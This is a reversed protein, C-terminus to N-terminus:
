ADNVGQMAISAPLLLLAADSGIAWLARVNDPPMYLLRHSEDWAILAAVADRAADRAASRAAQQTTFWAANRAAKQTAGIANLWFNPHAHIHALVRDIHNANPLHAWATRTDENYKPTTM